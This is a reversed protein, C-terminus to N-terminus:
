TTRGDEPGSEQPSGPAAPVPRLVVYGLYDLDAFGAPGTGQLADPPIPHAFFHLRHTISPYWRFTGAYLHAHESRWDADIYRYELVAGTAGLQYAHGLVSRLVDPKRAGYRDLLWTMAQPNQLDVVAAPEPPSWQDFRM